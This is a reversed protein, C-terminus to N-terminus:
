SAAVLPRRGTYAVLRELPTADGPPEVEAAFSGDERAAPVITRARDHVWTVVEDSVEVEQGSSEAFDWGHVLFEVSLISVARAAPIDGNPGAVTGEVGRDRWASVAQEGLSAVRDELSGQEPMEISAGAMEGLSAISGFLHVALAHADFESCPTPNTQSTVGRLVRLLVALTADAVTVEDLPDPVAAWEDPGADGTTALHQLRDLYHQWGEAHQEAQEPTLDDHDLTVKSSEDDVPEITITVTSADPPLDEADEWGWGLVVRRGPEVERVTGTAVHGPTVTWRYDGGARLDVRATVAQWRRLRAPETVLAFAEAAPVPLTVTRSYSM